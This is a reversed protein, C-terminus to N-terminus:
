MTIFIPINVKLSFSIYQHQPLYNYYTIADLIFMSVGAGIHFGFKSYDDIRNSKGTGPKFQNLDEYYCYEVGADMVPMLLVINDLLPKFYYRLGPAIVLADTSFSSYDSQKYFDERGPYHQYGVSTYLFFPLLNNDGYSFTIDAGIGINSRDSFDGIPFRPGVGVAMFVGKAGASQLQAFLPIITLFIIFIVKKM